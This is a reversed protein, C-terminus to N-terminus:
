EETGENIPVDILDRAVVVGNKVIYCEVYHPGYFSTSEKRISHIDKGSSSPIIQGRIKDLHEARSGRNRVKWLVTFPAEVDTQEIYFKLSRRVPLRMQSQLMQRLKRTLFGDSTVICDIRLYNRIDVPYKNEIFEETDNFTYARASECVYEEAPFFRGFISRWKKSRKVPDTEANAKQCQEFANKAVKRFDHKVKVRQHGGLALYYDQKQQDKLYCFFDEVMKDNSGYGSSDYANTGNLFNYALTDVLLGGMAEGCKNKWARTMKCLKRLNNNKTQVFETMAAIEQRPKTIKWSGGYYTEPYKFYCEGNDDYEEFVPQVEVKFNTFQVVVVLRDVKVDTQSYHSKIADKTDSLIQYQDNKYKDWSSKPMIYLMDLDSISKIGTWRGYSGVQLCNATESETQRFKKNLSKTIEHYRLSIQDADEDPIKINDLFTNFMEATTM